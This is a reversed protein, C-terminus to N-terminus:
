LPWCAMTTRHRKKLALGPACGKMHFHTKNAHSYFSMKMQFVTCWFKRLFLPVLCSLFPRNLQYQAGITVLM